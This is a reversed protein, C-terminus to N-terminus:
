LQNLYKTIYNKLLNCKKGNLNEIIKNKDFKRKKGMKEWKKKTFSPRINRNNLKEM